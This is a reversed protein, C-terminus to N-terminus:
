RRGGREVELLEADIRAFVADGDVLRGRRASEIGVDIKQRIAARYEPTSGGEDDPLGLARARRLAQEGDLREQRMLLYRSMADDLIDGVSRNEEAAAAEIKAKLASSLALSANNAKMFRLNADRVPTELFSM